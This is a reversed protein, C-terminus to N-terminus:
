SHYFYEFYVGIIVFITIIIIPIKYNFRVLSLDFNKNYLYLTLINNAILIAIAGYIGWFFVFVFGGVGAFVLTITNIKYLSKTDKLILPVAGYAFFLVQFVINILLIPLFKMLDSYSFEGNNFYSLFPSLFILALISLVFSGILVRNNETYILDKDQYKKLILPIWYNKYASLVIHVYNYVKYGIMYVGLVKYGFFFGILFKDYFYVFRRSLAMYLLPLSFKVNAVFHEKTQGSLGSRFHVMHALYIWVVILSLSDILLLDEIIYVSFNYFYLLKFLSNLAVPTVMLFVFAKVKEEMRIFSIMTQLISGSNIIILLYVLINNKFIQGGAWYLSIYSIVSFLLMAALQLTIIKSFENGEEGKLKWDRYRAGILQNFSLGFFISAIGCALSILSYKGFQELTLNSILLPFVTFAFLANVFPSVIYLRKKNLNFIIL